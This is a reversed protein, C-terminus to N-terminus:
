SEGHADGLMELIRDLKEELRCVKNWLMDKQIKDMTNSVEEVTNIEYNKM